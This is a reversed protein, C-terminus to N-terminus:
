VGRKILKGDAGIVFWEGDLGQGTVDGPVTDGVYYYLPWDGYTAQATERTLTNKGLLRADTGTGAEVRPATLAPWVAICAADCNGAGPRDKTFGYLTRGTGDVLIPGLTSDAVRVSHPLSAQAPDRPPGAATSPRGSVASDDGIGGGCATLAFLSLSILPVALTLTTRSVSM